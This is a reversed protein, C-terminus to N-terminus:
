NFMKFNM